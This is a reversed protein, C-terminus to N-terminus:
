WWQQRQQWDGHTKVLHVRAPWWNTRSDHPMWTHGGAVTYYVSRFPESEADRYQLWNSRFILAWLKHSDTGNLLQLTREDLFPCLITFCLNARSIYAESYSRQLYVSSKTYIGGEKIITYIAMNYWLVRQIKTTFWGHRYNEVSSISNQGFFVVFIKDLFLLIIAHSETKAWCTACQTWKETSGLNWTEVKQKITDYKIYYFTECASWM